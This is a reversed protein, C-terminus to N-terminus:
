GELSRLGLSAVYDEAAHVKHGFAGIDEAALVLGDNQGVEVGAARHGIHGVNALHFGAPAFKRRKEIRALDDGDGVHIRSGGNFGEGPFMAARDAGTGIGGFDHFPGKFAAFFNEEEGVLVKAAVRAVAHANGELLHDNPVRILLKTSVRRFGDAGRADNQPLAIAGHVLAERRLLDLADAALMRANADDSVGFAAELDCLRGVLDARGLADDLSNLRRRSAGLPGNARFNMKDVAKALFECVVSDDREIGANANACSHKADGRLMEKPSKLIEALAVDDVANGNVFASAVVRSNSEVAHESQALMVNPCVKQGSSQSPFDTRKELRLTTGLVSDSHSVFVVILFLVFRWFRRLAEERQGFRLAGALLEFREEDLSHIGALFEGAQFVLKGGDGSADHHHATHDDGVFLESGDAHLVVLKSLRELGGQVANEFGSAENLVEVHAEEIERGDDVLLVDIQAPLKALVADAKVMALVFAEGAAFREVRAVEAGAVLNLLKLRQANTYLRAKAQRKGKPTM